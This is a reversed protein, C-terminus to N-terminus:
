LNTHLNTVITVLLKQVCLNTVLLVNEQPTYKCKQVLNIM